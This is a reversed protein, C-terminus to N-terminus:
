PQMGEDTSFDRVLAARDREIQAAEMAKIAEQRGGGKGMRRIGDKVFMRMRAVHEQRTEDPQREMGYKDLNDVAQKAFHQDYHQACLNAWGTKTKIKVKASLFCDEHACNVHPEQPADFGSTIRRWGCGCYAANKGLPAGCTPCQNREM